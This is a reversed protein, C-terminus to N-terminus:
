GAEYKVDASHSIFPEVSHLLVHTPDEYKVDTWLSIFIRHEGPDTAPAAKSSKLPLATHPYPVNEDFCKLKNKDQFGEYKVDTRLSIFSGNLLIYTPAM